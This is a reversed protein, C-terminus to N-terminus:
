FMCLALLDLTLCAAHPDFRASCSPLTSRVARLTYLVLSSWFSRPQFPRGTINNGDGTASTGGNCRIYRYLFTGCEHIGNLVYVIHEQSWCGDHVSRLANARCRYISLRTLRLYGLRWTM